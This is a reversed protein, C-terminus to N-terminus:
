KNAPIMKFCIIGNENVRCEPVRWPKFGYQTGFEMWSHQNIDWYNFTDPLFWRKDFPDLGMVRYDTSPVQGELVGDPKIIRWLENLVLLFEDNPHIMELIGNAVVHEFKSDEFMPFGKRIDHQIDPGCFNSIDMNIYDDFHQKGCGIQLKVINKIDRAM